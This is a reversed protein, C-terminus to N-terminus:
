CNAACVEYFAQRSAFSQQIENEPSPSLRSCGSSRLRQTEFREVDDRRIMVRLVAVRVTFPSVQAPMGWDVEIIAWVDTREPCYGFMSVDNLDRPM